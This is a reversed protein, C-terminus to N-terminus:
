ERTSGPPKRPSAGDVASRRKKELEESEQELKRFVELAKRSEEMWGLRRYVGALVYYYSAARPNVAIADNLANVAADLNGQREAARGKQYMARDSQPDLELAKRAHELAKEADGTRNYYASLNVHASDFTGKREANLEIAKRYM